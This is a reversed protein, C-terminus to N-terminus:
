SKTRLLNTKGKIMILNSFVDALRYKRRYAEQLRKILVQDIVQEAEARFRLEGAEVEVRPNAKVNKYWNTKKSTRVFLRGDLYVFFVTVPRPLGSRRGITVLRITWRSKRAELQSQFKSAM